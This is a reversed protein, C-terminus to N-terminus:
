SHMHKHQIEENNAMTIGASELSLEPINNNESDARRDTRGDSSNRTVQVGSTENKSWPGM